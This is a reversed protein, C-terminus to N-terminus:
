ESRKGFSRQRRFTTVILASILFLGLTNGSDPVGATVPNMYTRFAADGQILSENWLLLGPLYGATITTGKFETGWGSDIFDITFPQGSTLNINASTLDYFNWGPVGVSTFVISNADTQWPAGLNIGFNVAGTQGLFLDIGTLQGTIGARVGQQLHRGPGDIPSTGFFTDTATQQQDLVPVAHATISLLPLTCALLLPSIKM